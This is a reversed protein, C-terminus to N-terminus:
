GLAAVAQRASQLELRMGLEDTDPLMERNQQRGTLPCKGVRSVRRGQDARRVRGVGVRDQSKEPKSAGFLTGPAVASCQRQPPRETNRATSTEFCDM